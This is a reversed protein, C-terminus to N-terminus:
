CPQSVAYKTKELRNMDMLNEDLANLCLLAM